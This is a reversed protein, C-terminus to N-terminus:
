RSPEAPRAHHRKADGPHYAEIRIKVERKGDGDDTVEVDASGELGQRALEELIERRTAEADSRDLDLDLLDYGIRGGLTGHVTGALPTSTCAGAPIGPAHAGLAGILEDDGVGEAGWLDLRFSRTAGGDDHARIALKEAGLDRALEQALTELQVESWTEPSLECGVSAGFEREYDVPLRCAAVAAVATAVSAVAWRHAGLWGRLPRAPYLAAHRALLEQELEAPPDAVVPESGRYLRRLGATVRDFLM